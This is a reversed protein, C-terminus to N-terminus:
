SHESKKFPNHPPIWITHLSGGEETRKHYQMFMTLSWSCLQILFVCDGNVLIRASV